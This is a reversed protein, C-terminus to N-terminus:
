VVIGCSGYGLELFVNNDVVMVLVQCVCKDVYFQMGDVEVFQNLCIVIIVMIVVENINWGDLFLILDIFDGDVFYNVDYEDVEVVVVWVVLDIGYDVYEFCDVWVGNGVNWWIYNENCVLVVKVGVELFELLYFGIGILNILMDVDNYSSYVIVVLYDVMGPIILIDFNLLNLQVIYSDVVVIVGDIVKGFDVDILFVMCGVMFNGEVFKDCWGIINCVVDEVIFDDGNNWKVGKCVNLIYIKVDVFVEWSELLSLIFIGDNEYFVFYEFWGCFFNVIQFWDYMCLDKFVCVEIQFCVIGGM